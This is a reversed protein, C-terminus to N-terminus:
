ARASEAWKVYYVLVMEDHYNLVHARWVRATCSGQRSSCPFQSQPGGLPGRDGCGVQYVRPDEGRPVKGIGGPQAVTDAEHEVAQLPM